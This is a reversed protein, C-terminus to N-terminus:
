ADAASQLREIEAKVGPIKKVAPHIDFWLADNHYRLLVNNRFMADADRHHDDDQAAFSKHVAVAALWEFHQEHVLVRYSDDMETLVRRIQEHGLTANPEADRLLTRLVRVLERPYGGTSLIVQEIIREVGPGLLDRLHDDPIRRRVLERAAALGDKCEDGNRDRLKIMPMFNNDPLHLRFALAPPITYLVHVPLRLCPENADFLREASDLVERWNASTGSLKEFSDFVLLMGSYGQQKARAEMQTFAERVNRLFTDIHRTAARRVQERFSPQTKLALTIGVDAVGPMGGSVNVQEAGVETKSLWDWIRTLYGSKLADDPNKDEAVLVQREAAFVLNMLIDPVDVTNYLDVEKEADIYVCLLHPGDPGSEGLAKMLRKLETSKGSGSLGTFRLLVPTDSLEVQRALHDVWNRGRPSHGSPGREDIPAYRANGPELPEEPKCLNYYKKILEFSLGTM